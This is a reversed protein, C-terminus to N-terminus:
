VLNAMKLTIRENNFFTIYENIVQFAQEITEFKFNKYDRYIESKIIGWVGEMPGNDIC